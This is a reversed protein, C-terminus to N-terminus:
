LSSEVTWVRGDEGPVALKKKPLLHCPRTRQYMSTYSDSGKQPFHPMKFRQEVGRTEQSTENYVYTQVTYFM